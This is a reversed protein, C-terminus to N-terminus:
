RLRPLRPLDAPALSVLAAVGYRALWTGLAGAALTLVLGEASFQRALQWRTAGIALRVAVERRRATGRALLLNAVNACLSWCSWRQGCALLM